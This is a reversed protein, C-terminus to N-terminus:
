KLTGGSIVKIHDVPFWGVQQYADLFVPLLNVYENGSISTGTGNLHHLQLRNVKIPDGQITGTSGAKVGGVSKVAVMGDFTVQPTGDANLVPSYVHLIEDASGFMYSSAIQVRDGKM